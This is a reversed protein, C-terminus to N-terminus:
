AVAERGFSRMISPLDSSNDAFILRHFAQSLRVVEGEPTQFRKVTCPEASAVWGDAARKATKAALEAETEAQEYEFQVQVPNM